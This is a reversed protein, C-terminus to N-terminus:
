MYCSDSQTRVVPGNYLMYNYLNSQVFCSVAYSNYLNRHTYPLGSICAGILRLRTELTVKMYYKSGWLM